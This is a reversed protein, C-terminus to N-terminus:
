MFEKKRFIQVQLYNESNEVCNEGHSIGPVLLIKEQDCILPLIDRIREPVKKDCMLKKLKRNMGHYFFKDGTMRSRVFLEGYIRDRCLVDQIFLNYINESLPPKDSGNEFVGVAFGNIETFKGVELPIKGEQVNPTEAGNKQAFVADTHAFFRCGHVSVSGNKGSFALDLCDSINKETINKRGNERECLLM